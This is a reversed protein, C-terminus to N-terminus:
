IRGVPTSCICPSIQALHLLSRTRDGKRPIETPSIEEPPITGSKQTKKFQKLDVILEDAHQYREDPIKALAKNVVRELEMPVGTRLGTVPEPEENMISYVMAQEYEGKFPLQGTIMEYLMIGFSWIDTRHDVREGRAQEPSMYAATGMTMGTKTLKTKGSLKALGFDMIKVRGKDTVMINTSKIDRHFIGKEHAENLGEAVQIAIDLIEDLKLPGSEIKERINRGEVYEMAIFTYMGSKDSGEAEDIEYVTCINAHSLAAAAQAEHVLRTKEEESGLAQPTLFKLAVTRKLRTDEAKYVVGMGGRGLEDIIRYHLVTKGIM